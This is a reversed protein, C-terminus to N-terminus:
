RKMDFCICDTKYRDKKSEERHVYFISQIGKEIKSLIVMLVIHTTKKSKM